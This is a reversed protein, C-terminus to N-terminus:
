IVGGARMAQIAADSYGLSRLVEETHEGLVPPAEAVKGPTASLKVPIGTLTLPGLTRHNVSLVMERAVTQPNTLAEEVSLIPGVPIGSEELAKVWHASDRQGIKAQIIPFLSDRNRVRQPNTAYEPRDRLEELGLLACFKEWLKDNGVAINIYRDAAKFTEYPCITPHQNGRRTPSVGTM